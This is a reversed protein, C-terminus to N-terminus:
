LLSRLFARAARWDPLRHRAISAGHGVHIAIAEPPLAAFMDEDTRDDGMSLVMGGPGEQALVTPPIVGKHIGHLRVEIVKEGRLVQVPMNSLVSALHFRLEKAQAAGYEPDAMRYHWAIATSKEEIQAGPTKAAFQQLVALVKLKWDFPSEFLAVWPAGPAKRTWFGHETHVAVNVGALWAGLPERPRGSVVHVHTGPRAALAELLSLLDPDPKSLVPNNHFGTLTGDYDLMLILRPAARLTEAVDHLNIPPPLTVRLDDKKEDDEDPALAELFSRVWYHVDYTVVRQRLARMRTAREEAPMAVAQLIAAATGDIDYPNVILAEGLESAAGAFESLILVGDDDTRTAVFEKAVLNMGDRLPTVLMVDAARYLSVLEEESFGRYLYHIPVDDVTGYAGNIRGVMEDVKRRFDEYAPIQTRSPVAVQIFRLRGRLDPNQQLVREVSLLRRPIGKTYDLRDVGLLVRESPKGRRINGVDAISRPAEALGKFAAADIGMPFAGLRVTRGGYAIRDVDAEVGLIRLISSTFHRLYTFTHFGILDAGLIGRLIRDRWPLIRFVESAPFPIHLFFGIQANPVLERLLAPVLLLQYDHIWVVDGPAYREAIADAFRKNVAKYADWDTSDLPVQDLLYHFLPWLVRNSFGEYFGNIEAETFEIPVVRMADLSSMLSARQEADLSAIDGPWGIWLGNSREHPGRLGTALGGPSRKVHVAGAEVRVTVPLRCSVLLLRPM